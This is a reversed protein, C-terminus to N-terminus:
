AGFTPVATYKGSEDVSEIVEILRSNIFVGWRRNEITVVDGVFVDKKYEINDFYVTGEFAKTIQTINELGEERMQAKYEEDTVEGNNTSMNRQDHYLEYRDLGTPNSQSVWLTKRDLGEGEGAVLVDTVLESTNEIYDSSLLNDYEDSFIVFPRDSQAYSRDVGKYLTFEFKKENNLIVKFGIHLAECVNEIVELLNKGTYQAELKETFTQELVTFNPIKRAAIKPNIVNENILKLIGAQVTGNVQTQEAIIRRGLICPLFRGTIIMQEKGDENVTMHVAEIIGVNEDDDRIIYFGRQILTLYKPQVAVVIEFDGCKYFRAAWILSSYDDIVALREFNKNAIIPEIM